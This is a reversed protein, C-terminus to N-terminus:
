RRPSRRPRSGRRPWCRCGTGPWRRCWRRPRPSVRARCSRPPEPLPSNSPRTPVSCAVLGLSGSCRSGCATEPSGRARGNTERPGLHDAGPGAVRPSGEARSRPGSRATSNCRRRALTRTEGRAPRTRGQCRAPRTSRPSLTTRPAPAAGPDQKPRGTPTTGTTERRPRPRPLTERLRLNTCIPPGLRPRSPRGARALARRSSIAM